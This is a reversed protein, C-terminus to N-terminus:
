LDGAKREILAALEVMGPICPAWNSTGAHRRLNVGAPVPRPGIRGDTFYAHKM